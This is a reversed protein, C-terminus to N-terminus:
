PKSLKRYISVSSSIMISFSKMTNIIYVCLKCQHISILVSCLPSLFKFLSTHFMCVAKNNISCPSSITSTRSSICILRLTFTFPQPALHCPLAKYLFLFLPSQGRFTWSLHFFHFIHFRCYTVISTSSPMWRPVQHIM